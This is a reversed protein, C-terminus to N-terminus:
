KNLWAKFQTYKAKLFSAIWNGIRKFINLKKTSKVVIVEPTVSVITDTTPATITIPKRKRRKNYPKKVIPTIEVADVPVVIENKTPTLVKTSVKNTNNNM